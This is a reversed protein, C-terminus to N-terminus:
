WSSNARKNVSFWNVAARHHRCLPLVSRIDASRSHYATVCSFLWIAMTPGDHRWVLRMSVRMACNVRLSGGFVAKLGCLVFIWKVFLLVISAKGFLGSVILPGDNLM